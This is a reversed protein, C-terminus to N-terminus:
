LPFIFIMLFTFYKITFGKKECDTGVVESCEHATSYLETIILGLNKLKTENDTNQLIRLKEKLERKQKKKEKLDDENFIIEDDLLEEIVSIYKAKQEVSYCIFRSDNERIEKKTALMQKKLVDITEDKQLYESFSITNNLEVILKHIPEILYRYQGNEEILDNLKELLLKQNESNKKLQKSDQKANEYVRIQESLNNYVTELVAINDKKTEVRNEMNKIASLEKRIASANDGTYRKNIDLKALRSNVENLVFLYKTQGLNNVNFGHFHSFAVYKNCKIHKM